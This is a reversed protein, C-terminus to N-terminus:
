ARRAPHPQSRRARPGQPDPGEGRRADERDRAQDRQRARAGPRVHGPRGPQGPKGAACVSGRCCGPRRDQGQDANGLLVDAATKGETPLSRTSPRAPRSRNPRLRPPMRRRTFVLQEITRTEARPSIRKNKEYDQEVQEDTVRASTWSTRRSSSSMPSSATNRHRTPRRTKRSGPRCCRRGDPSRGARGAVQAAVSLRRHPGRRSLARGGAPLHGAGQARRFRGRRDAPARRGAVPEQPLRRPAHRDPAARLRLGPPRVPRGPGQFAPDDCTLQALRDKSIGLGM